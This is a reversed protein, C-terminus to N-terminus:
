LLVTLYGGWNHTRPNAPAMMADWSLLPLGMSFMVVFPAIVCVAFWVAGDAALDVGRLNLLFIPTVLAMGLLWRDMSM